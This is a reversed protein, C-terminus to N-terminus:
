PAVIKRLRLNTRTKQTNETGENYVIRQGDPSWSALSEEGPADSLQQLGSGDANVIFIDEQTPRDSNYGSSFVIRQGDPSWDPSRDMYPTNILPRIKGSQVNVIYLGWNDEILTRFVIERGDPSWAPDCNYGSATLRRRGSGDANIVVIDQGDTRGPEQGWYTYFAIRQGDPSWRPHAAAYAKSTDAQADCRDGQELLRVNSGDAEMIYILPGGSRTSSFAIQGQAPSTNHFILLFLTTLPLYLYRQM